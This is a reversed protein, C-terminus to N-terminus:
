WLTSYHTSKIYLSDSINVNFVMFYSMHYKYLVKYALWCISYSFVSGSFYLSVVTTHNKRGWMHPMKWPMKWGVKLSVGFYPCGTLDQITLTITPRDSTNAPNRQMRHIVLSHHVHDDQPKGTCPIDLPQTHNVRQYVNVYSHFSGGNKIPLDVIEIAM